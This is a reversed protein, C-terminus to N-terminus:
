ILRRRLAFVAGGAGLIALGGVGRALNRGGEGDDGKIVYSYATSASRTRPRM